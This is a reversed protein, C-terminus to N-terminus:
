VFLYGADHPDGLLCDLHVAHPDKLFHTRFGQGFQDSHCRFIKLVFACAIDAEPGFCVDALASCMDAKSGFRVDCDPTPFYGRTSGQMDSVEGVAASTVKGIKAM